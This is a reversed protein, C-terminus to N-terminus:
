PEDGGVDRISLEVHFGEFPELLHGIEAWTLELDDVLVSPGGEARDFPAIQGKLRDRLLFLEGTRANRGVDPQALRERIRERIKGFAVGPDDRVREVFRLGVPEDGRMERADLFLGAAYIMM